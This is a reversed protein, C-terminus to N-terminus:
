EFFCNFGIMLLQNFIEPSLSSDLFVFKEPSFKGQALCILKDNIYIEKLTNGFGGCKISFNEKGINGTVVYDYVLDRPEHNTGLFFLSTSDYGNTIKDIFLKKNTDTKSKEISFQAITDTENLLLHINDKLFGTFLLSPSPPPNQTDIQAILQLSYNKNRVVDRCEQHLLVFDSIAYNKTKKIIEELYPNTKTAKKGRMRIEEYVAEGMRIMETGNYDFSHLDKKTTVFVRPQGMTKTLIFNDAVFAPSAKLEIESLNNNPNFLLNMGIKLVETFGKPTLSVTNSLIGIGPTIGPKIIMELSNDFLISDRRTLTINLLLVSRVSDLFTSDERTVITKQSFFKNSYALSSSEFISLFMHLSDSYDNTKHLTQLELTNDADLIQINLRSTDTLSAHHYKQLFSNLHSSFTMRIGVNQFYEMVPGKISQCRIYEPIVKTQAQLVQLFFSMVFLALIKKLM